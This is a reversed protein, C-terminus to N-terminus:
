EQRPPVALSVDHLSDEGDMETVDLGLEATHGDLFRGGRNMAQFSSAVGSLNTMLIGEEAELEVM